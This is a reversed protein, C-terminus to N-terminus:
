VHRQYPDYTAKIINYMFNKHWVNHMGKLLVYYYRCFCVLFFKSTTCNEKEQKLAILINLTCLMYLVCDNWTHTSKMFIDLWRWYKYLYLTLPMLSKILFDDPFAFMSMSHYAIIMSLENNDTTLHSPKGLLWAYCKLIWGSTTDINLCICFRLHSARPVCRVLPPPPRPRPRPAQPGAAAALAGGEGHGGHWRLLLLLGTAPTHRSM